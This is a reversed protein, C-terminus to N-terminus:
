IFSLLLGLLSFIFGALWFRMTVKTEPWGSLEFHHHLPAMKFFKGRGSKKHAIQVLDSFVELVFVGGLVFLALEKHLMFGVVFAAAGLAQAGVNGMFVRAPYFNFYLFATLTGVLSACFIALGLQNQFFAIIGLSAFLELLLGGALGDLGDTIAVSNLFLTFLFVTLFIYGLGLNVYGLLPLYYTTWGLKFYFWLAFFTGILLQLIYKQYTKFGVGSASGGLSQLLDKFFNWPLYFWGWGIKKLDDRNVYVPSVSAYGGQRIIKKNVM